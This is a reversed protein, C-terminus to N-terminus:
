GVRRLRKMSGKERPQRGDGGFGTDVPCTCRRTLLRGLTPPLQGRDGGVVAPVVNPQLQGQDQSQGVSM